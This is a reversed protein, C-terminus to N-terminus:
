ASEKPKSRENRSNGKGDVGVIQQGHGVGQESATSEQEGDTVETAPSSFYRWLVKTWFITEITGLVGVVTLVTIKVVATAGLDKFSFSGYSPNGDKFLKTRRSRVDPQDHM